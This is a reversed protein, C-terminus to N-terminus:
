VMEGATTAHIVKENTIRIAEQEAHYAETRKMSAELALRNIEKQIGEDKLLPITVQGVHQRDIEPVVAGYSSRTILERGYDTALFVYLYGAIDTSAPVIRIMHQSATWGEWHKPVLAVKGITGSCTVLIMNQELTLQEKIRKAHHALSLYKKKAPDLELIQRGGFFPIGQGEQVYVRAFRGPLVVRRSLRPDDITTLEAAGKKLRHLIASVIPVHYSAELRGALQSLKISYNCPGASSKFYRPQVQALPPLRLAEFLLREAQSLLENSEDRLAYSKLILKHIRHRLAEPPNPIPVTELHSPEIHPIMAGYENTKILARGTATRLFAYLYGSTGEEICELRILDDSFIRNHLTQSVYTVVGISGSRGSRTM